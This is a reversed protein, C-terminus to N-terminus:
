GRRAAALSLGAITKCDAIRHPEALLERLPRRSIELNEDPDPHAETETLGEALFFFMKENCFGPATYCAGLPTWRSAEHGTEERLERKAAALPDEGPELGGAPIEVLATECAYRYQRVLLVRERDDLAVIAVAGPHDVVNRISRRGDPLEIEDTRLSIIKGRYITQSSVRRETLERINM